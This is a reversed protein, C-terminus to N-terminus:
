IAGVPLSFNSMDGEVFNVDAGAAEALEQGYALMAPSGDLAWVATGSRALLVAHRAPGCSRLPLSRGARRSRWALVVALQQTCLRTTTTAASAWTQM